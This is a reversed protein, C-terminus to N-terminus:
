SKRMLNLELALYVVNGLFFFIGCLKVCECRVRHHSGARWNFEVSASMSFLLDKVWGFVVFSSM